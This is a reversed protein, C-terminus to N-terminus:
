KSTLPSDNYSVLVESLTILGSASQKRFKVAIYAGKLSDGNLKAGRSNSDRKFSSSPKGELVTFEASVLTSSQFTGAYTEVDTYITPCDWIGSATEMVSLWSKKETINPNFVLTIYCDYVTGYFTCYNSGSVAHKYIQGNKWSYILDDASL